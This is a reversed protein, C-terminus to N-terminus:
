TILVNSHYCSFVIAIGGFLAQLLLCYAVVRPEGRPRRYMFLAWLANIKTSYVLGEESTEGVSWRFGDLARLLLNILYPTTAIVGALKIMGAIISAALVAGILYTGSNGPFVKAPHWNWKLFAILAGTLSFFAIASETSGYVLSSIALSTATIAGLGAELGNFGAYINVGNALFAFILPVSLWFFVGLDAPGFPTLYIMTSGARFTIIPMGMLLTSFVLVKKNLTFLDDLLGILGGLSASLLIALMLKENVGMMGSLTVAGIFGVLISVGGIKAVESGDNKHLDIGAMGVEKAKGVLKPALLYTTVFSIILFSLLLVPNINM